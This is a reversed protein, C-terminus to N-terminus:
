YKSIKKLVFPQLVLFNAFHDPVVSLRNVEGCTELVVGNLASFPKLDVCNVEGFRWGWVSFVVVFLEWGVTVVSPLM